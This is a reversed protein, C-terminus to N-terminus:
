VRDKVILKQGRGLGLGVGYTDFHRECLFAWPGLTTAGDYAALNGLGETKCFDCQPLETVEVETHALTRTRPPQPVDSM